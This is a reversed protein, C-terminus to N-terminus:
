SRREGSSETDVLWRREFPRRGLLLADGAVFWFGRANAALGRRQAERLAAATAKVSVAEEDYVCTEAATPPMRLERSAEFLAHMAHATRRPLADVDLRPESATNNM